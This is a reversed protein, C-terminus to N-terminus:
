PLTLSPGGADLPPAVHTVFHTVFHQSLMGKKKTNANHCFFNVNQSAHRVEESWGDTLQLAEWHIDRYSAVGILGLSYVWEAM